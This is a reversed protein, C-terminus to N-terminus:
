QTGTRDLIHIITMIITMILSIQERERKRDNLKKTCHSCYKASNV